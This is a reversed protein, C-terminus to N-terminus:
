NGVRRVLDRARTFAATRRPEPTGDPQQLVVRFGPRRRSVAAAIAEALAGAATGLATGDLRLHGVWPLWPWDPVPATSEGGPVVPPAPAGAAGWGAAGGVAAGGGAAGPLTLALALRPFEAALDALWPAPDAAAPGRAAAPVAVGLVVEIRHRERVAALRECARHVAARTAPGCAAGSGGGLALVFFEIYKAAVSAAEVAAAEARDLAAGAVAPDPDLLPLAGCAAARAAPAGPRSPGPVPADGPPAFLPYRVGLLWDKAEATAVAAWFSPLGDLGSIECGDWGRDLREGGPLVEDGDCRGQIPVLLWGM